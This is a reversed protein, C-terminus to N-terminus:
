RVGGQSHRVIDDERMEAYYLEYCIVPADTDNQFQHIAGAPVVFCEGARVIHPEVDMGGPGFDLFNNVTLIGSEVIFANAKSQHQHISCYGGPAIEIRHLSGNPFSCVKATTGWNKIDPM